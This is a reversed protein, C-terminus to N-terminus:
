AFFILWVERNEAGLSPACWEGIRISSIKKSWNSEVRKTHSSIIEAKHKKRSYNESVNCGNKWSSTIKSDFLNQNHLTSTLHAGFFIRFGFRGLTIHCQFWLLSACPFQLSSCDTFLMWYLVDCADESMLFWDMSIYRRNGKALASIAWADWASTQATERYFYLLGRKRMRERETTDM